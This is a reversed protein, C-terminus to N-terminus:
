LKKLQGSYPEYEFVGESLAWVIKLGNRKGNLRDRILLDVNYGTSDTPDSVSQKLFKDPTESQAKKILTQQVKNFEIHKKVINFGDILTKRITSDKTPDFPELVKNLDKLSKVVIPVTKQNSAM